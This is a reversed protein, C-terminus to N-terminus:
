LLFQVRLRPGVVDHGTTCTCPSGPKKEIEVLSRVRRESRVKAVNYFVLSDVEPRNVEDEEGVDYELCM